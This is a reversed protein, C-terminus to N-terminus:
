RGDHQKYRGGHLNTDVTTNNTDVTVKNKDVTMNTDVTM